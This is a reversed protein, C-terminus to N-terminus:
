PQAFSGRHGVSSHGHGGMPDSIPTRTASVLLSKIVGDNWSTAIASFFLMYKGVNSRSAM